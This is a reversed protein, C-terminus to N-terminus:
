CLKIPVQLRLFMGREQNNILPLDAIAECLYDGCIHYGHADIYDLLRRAYAVENDFSNCYICLYSGAPVAISLSDSVYDEDVFVFVENSFFTRGMLLEKRLISGANCFYIQPVHDNIINHKLERLMTEYVDIGHDYINQASRIYYMYRTPIYELIITGDPPSNEFRRLSEVTREIARQQHQLENIKQAIQTQKQLLIPILDNPTSTNLDTKIDDLTMGLSKMYQILDLMASQKVDYYRYGTHKDKHAPSLLGIKDYYRLTQESIKNLAAMKSVTLREM